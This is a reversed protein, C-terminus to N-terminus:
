VEERIGMIIHPMIIGCTSVAIFISFLYLCLRDVAMAAFRWESTILEHAYIDKLTATMKELNSNVVELEDCFQDFYTLYLPRKEFKRSSCKQIATNLTSPRPLNLIPLTSLRHIPLITKGIVKPKPARPHDPTRMMLIYPLWEVFVRRMLPSMEHTEAKRQHLCITLVTFVCSCAVVMLCCSFFAALIPVSKSQPPSMNSVM